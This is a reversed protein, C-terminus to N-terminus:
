EFKYKFWEIDRKYACSVKDVLESDYYRKYDISRMITRNVVPLTVRHWGLEECVEDFCHQLTEYRGVFDVAINNRNDRIFEFQNDLLCYARRAEDFNDLVDHMFRKNDKAWAYGSPSLDGTQTTFSCASIFRDFPNRVFAFRFKDRTDIFDDLHRIPDHTQFYEGLVANNYRRVEKSPLFEKADLNLLVKTNSLIADRIANTGTKPVAIFVFDKGIIM